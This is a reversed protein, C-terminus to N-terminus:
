PNRHHQRAARQPSEPRRRHRSTKRRTLRPKARGTSHKQRDLKDLDVWYSSSSDGAYDIVRKLDNAMRKIRNGDSVLRSEKKEQISIKRSDGTAFVNPGLLIELKDAAAIYAKLQDRTNGRSTRSDSRIRYLWKDPEYTDPDRTNQIEFKDTKFKRFKEPFNYRLAKKIADRSNQSRVDEWLDAFTTAGAKRLSQILGAPCGQGGYQNLGPAIEKFREFKGTDWEVERLHDYVNSAKEPLGSGQFDRDDVYSALSELLRWKHKTKMKEVDKLSPVRKEM